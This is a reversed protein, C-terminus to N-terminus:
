QDPSTAILLYAIVDRRDDPKRVGAFSMRNGPLFKRPNTLWSDLHEPTWKFDAEQLADSYKFGEAEATHRGFINYLNPGVRNGAGEETLHCTSCQKFIRKGNSLKAENYPAPLTDLKAQVSPDTAEETPPSSSASSTAPAPPPPTESTTVEPATVSAPTTAGSDDSGGCAALTFALISTTLLTRM